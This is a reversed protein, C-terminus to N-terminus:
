EERLFLDQVPISFGPLLDGGDLMDDAALVVPAAHPRNGPLVIAVNLGLRERHAQYAQYAQYAQHAQRVVFWSGRAAQVPM